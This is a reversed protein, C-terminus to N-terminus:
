RSCASLLPSRSGAAMSSSSRDCSVRDHTGCGAAVALELAVQRRRLFPDVHDGDHRHRRHRLGRWSQYLQQVRAGPAPLGGDAGQQDGPHLSAGGPSAVHSHHESAALVRAARETSHALFRGFDVSAIRRNCRRDCHRGPAVPFRASGPQLVPQEGGIPGASRTRGSRLLQPDPCPVGDRVLRTPDSTKRFTGHRCLAGRCRHRRPRGGWARSLRGKWKRPLVVRWGM